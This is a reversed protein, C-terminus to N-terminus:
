RRCRGKCVYMEGRNWFGVLGRLKPGTVLCKRNAPSVNIADTNIYILDQEEVGGSFKGDQDGMLKCQMESSSQTCHIVQTANTMAVAESLRVRRPFGLM